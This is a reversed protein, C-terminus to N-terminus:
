HIPFNWSPDLAMKTLLLLVFLFISIVLGWRHWFPIPNSSIVESATSRPVTTMQGCNACYLHYKKKAVFPAFLLIGIKTYKLFLKPQDKQNCKECCSDQFCYLELQIDQINLFFGLTFDSVIGAHRTERKALVPTNGADITSPLQPVIDFVANCSGCKFFTDATRIKHIPVFFLHYWTDISVESFKARAQCSPCTHM